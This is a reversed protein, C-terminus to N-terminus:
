LQAPFRKFKGSTQQRGWGAVWCNDFIEDYADDPNQMCVPRIYDTYVMKTKLQLIAIDNDPFQYNPHRIIRDVGTTKAHFTSGSRDARGFTLSLQSASAGERYNFLIPLHLGVINKILVFYVGLIIFFNKVRFSKLFRFILVKEGGFVACM